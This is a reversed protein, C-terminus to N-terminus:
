VSSCLPGVCLDFGVNPPKYEPAQSPKAIPADDEKKLLLGADFTGKALSKQAPLEKSINNNTTNSVMSQNISNKTVEWIFTKAEAQSKAASKINVNAEPVAKAEAEVEESTNTENTPTMKTGAKAEKETEAKINMAAKVKGKTEAEAKAIQYAEEEAKREADELARNYAATRAVGLQCDQERKRVMYLENELKQKEMEVANKMETLKRIEMKMEQITQTQEKELMSIARQAELSANKVARQTEVKCLAKEEETLSYEDTRKALITENSESQNKMCDPFDAFRLPPRMQQRRTCTGDAFFAWMTTKQGVM